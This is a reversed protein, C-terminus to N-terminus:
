HQYAQQGSQQQAGHQHQDRGKQTMTTTTTVMPVAARRHTVASASNSSPSSSRILGATNGNGSNDVGSNTGQKGSSGHTSSSSCANTSSSSTGSSSTSTSCTSGRTGVHGDMDPLVLYEEVATEAAVALASSRLPAAAATNKVKCPEGLREMQKHKLAVQVMLQQGSAKLQQAEKVQQDLSILDASWAAGLSV